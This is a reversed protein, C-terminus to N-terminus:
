AVIRRWDLRTGTAAANEIAMDHCRDCYYTLRGRCEHTAPACCWLCKWTIADRGHVTCERHGPPLAACALCVAASAKAGGSRGSLSRTGSPGASGYPSSVKDVSGRGAAAEGDSDDEDSTTGCEKLGGYFPKCCVRCLWYSLRAMAVESLEADSLPVLPSIVATSSPALPNHFRWPLGLVKAKSLAMDSVDRQLRRLPALWGDADPVATRMPTRCLPCALAGFELEHGARPAAAALAGCLCDEHLIHPCDLLPVLSGADLSEDGCYCVSTGPATSCAM